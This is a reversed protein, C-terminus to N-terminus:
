RSLPEHPDPGHHFVEDLKEVDYRQGCVECVRFRTRSPAKDNRRPEQFPPLPPLKQM